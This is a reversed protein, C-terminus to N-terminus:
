QTNSLQHSHHQGHHEIDFHDKLYTAKVPYKKHPLLSGICELSLLVIVNMVKMSVGIIAQHSLANSFHSLGFSSLWWALLFLWWARFLFFHFTFTFVFFLWWSLLFLWLARFKIQWNRLKCSNPITLSKSLDPLKLRSGGYGSFFNGPGSNLSSHAHFPHHDHSWRAHSWQFFCEVLFLQSFLSYLM